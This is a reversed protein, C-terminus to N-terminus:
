LDGVPSHWVDLHFRPRSPSALRADLQRRAAALGADDGTGTALTELHARVRRYGAILAACATCHAVHDAVARADARSTEDLAAAILREETFGCPLRHTDPNNMTDTRTRHWRWGSSACRRTSM